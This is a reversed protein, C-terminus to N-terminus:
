EVPFLCVSLKSFIHLRKWTNETLFFRSKSNLRESEATCRLPGKNESYESFQLTFRGRIKFNNEM